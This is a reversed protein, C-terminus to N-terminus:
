LVTKTNLCTLASTGLCTRVDRIEAGKDCWNRQEGVEAQECGVGM